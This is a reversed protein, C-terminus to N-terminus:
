SEPKCEKRQKTHKATREAGYKTRETHECITNIEPGPPETGVHTTPTSLERLKTTLVTPEPGDTASTAPSTAVHQQAATPRLGCSQARAPEADMTTPKSPKHLLDSKAPDPRRSCNIVIM